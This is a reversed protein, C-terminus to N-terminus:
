SKQDEANLFERTTSEALSVKIVKENKEALIEEINRKGGQFWNLNDAILHNNQCGDCKVIVVGKTYGQKSIQKSNKTNCVKCTYMLQFKGEKQALPTSCLDQLPSGTTSRFRNFSIPRQDYQAFKILVSSIPRYNVSILIRQFNSLHHIQFLQKLM